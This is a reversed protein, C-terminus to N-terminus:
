LDFLPSACQSCFRANMDRVPSGCSPCTVAKRHKLPMKEPLETTMDTHLVGESTTAPSTEAAPASMTVQPSLAKEIESLRPDGLTVDVVQNLYNERLARIRARYQGAAEEADQLFAHRIGTLKALVGNESAM